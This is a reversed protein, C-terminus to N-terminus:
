GQNEKMFLQSEDERGAADANIFRQLSAIRAKAGALEQQLFSLENELGMNQAQLQRVKRKLILNRVKTQQSCPPVLLEPEM